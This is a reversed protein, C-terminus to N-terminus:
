ELERDKRKKGSGLAKADSTPLHKALNAKVPAFEPNSALNHWENPDTEHDYLEEGGDAYRIYRWRETRLAHNGQGHTTLAPKDWALSPSKLLPVLSTGDLAPMAPLSCLDNLTPFLDLPSVPRASRSGPATLGPAALIMPIRTSRDWLTFKHLHQKEGLHWGHDSWFVIITDKAAPSADLADLLRGVLADAFSIGALYAQLLERYRGEKMVLEYDGRRDAAMQKGMEPLDDCDDVKVPPLTIRHQPYLDFYKRPAYFPLHPRYIGAALFFPEKSPQALFKVAWEVMRGDGMERDPRDWGGWDFENPNQPPKSFTRVAELRNLPFGEPWRFQKVDLGCALQDQYHSDFVQDFYDHWDSRRNFGPMHHNVKGGGVVHYGNAKFHQPITLVQPMAELWKTENGYIGTTSPRLGTLTAVRSPNCVPASVHANTFLLGRAALRDMHPTKVDPHGDLCSVWDNMDDVIIMLVNPRESASLSSLCSCSTLLIAAILLVSKLSLGASIM